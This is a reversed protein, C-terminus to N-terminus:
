SLDFEISHFGPFPGEIQRRLLDTFWPPQFDFLDNWVLKMQSEISAQRALNRHTRPSKAIKYRSVLDPTNFGIRRSNRDTPRARPDRRDLSGDGIGDVGAARHLPGRKHPMSVNRIGQYLYHIGIRHPHRNDHFFDGGSAAPM